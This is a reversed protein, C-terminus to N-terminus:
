FSTRGVVDIPRVSAQQRNGIRTQVLNYKGDSGIQFISFYIGGKM